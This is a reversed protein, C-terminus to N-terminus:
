RQCDSLYAAASRMWEESHLESVDNFVATPSNGLTCFRMLAVVAQDYAYKRTLVVPFRACLDILLQGLLRGDYAIFTKKCAVCEMYEAALYYRSKLDVVTRVRNYLGKSTLYHAGKCNPCKFDSNWMMRPMWLFVRRHFYSPASPLETKRPGPPQPPHWWTKLKSVLESKKAFLERGIWYHDLERVTAKWGEPLRHAFDARRSSSSQFPPAATKSSPAGSTTSNSSPAATSGSPVASSGFPATAVVM